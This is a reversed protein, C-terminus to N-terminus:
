SFNRNQNDINSSTQDIASSEGVLKLSGDSFFNAQSLGNTFQFPFIHQASEGCIDQEIGSSDIKWISQNWSSNSGTGVVYIDGNTSDISIDRTTNFSAGISTVALGNEGFGSDLQGTASFVKMVQYVKPSGSSTTAILINEDNDLAAHIGASTDDIPTLIELIGNDAFNPDLAGNADMKFIISRVMGGSFSKTVIVVSGDSMFLADGYDTQWLVRSDEHLIYGTENFDTDYAGAATLRILAVGAPNNTVATALIKDDELEKIGVVSGKISTQIELRASGNIGFSEDVTGEANLRGVYPRFGSVGNSPAQYGGVLIKGDSQLSATIGTNRGEWTHTTRGSSGFTEDITNDANMRCASVFFQNSSNFYSTGVIIYKENEIELTEFPTDISNNGFNITLENNYTCFEQSSGITSVLISILLLTTRM